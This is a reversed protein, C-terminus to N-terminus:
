CLIIGFLLLLSINIHFFIVNNKGTKYTASIWAFILNSNWNFCPTFDVHFDFNASAHQTKTYQNQYLHNYKTISFKDVIPTDKHLITTAINFIGLIAIMIMGYFFIANARTSISYM